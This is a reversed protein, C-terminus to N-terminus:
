SHLTKNKGYSFFEKAILALICNKELVRPNLSTNWQRERKFTERLIKCSQKIDVRKQRLFSLLSKMFEQYRLNKIAIFFSFGLIWVFPIKDCM